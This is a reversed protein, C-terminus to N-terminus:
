RRERGAAVGLALRELQETEFPKSLYRPIGLEAARAAPNAAATVLVVATEPDKHDLLCRACELPTNGPMWYDLLVLRLHSRERLLVALGISCDPAEFVTLQKEELLM